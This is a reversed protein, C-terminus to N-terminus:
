FENLVIQDYIESRLLDILKKEKPKSYNIPKTLTRNFISDSEFTM